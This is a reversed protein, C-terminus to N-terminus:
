SVARKEYQKRLEALAAVTEPVEHWSEAVADALTEGTFSKYSVSEPDGRFLVAQMGANKAGAIDTREIDGIHVAEGPAAEFPELASRFALENPKSVGTEDSFVFGSFHQIVGHRELVKKLLSGPSIATDSIIALKYQEALAALAESAGAILGPMGVLISEEFAKVVKDHTEEPINAGMRDWVIQLTESANLTRHENRWYHEFSEHAIVFAKDADEDTYTLGIAGFAEALAARRYAKREKGNSSDVITNWFDITVVKIM